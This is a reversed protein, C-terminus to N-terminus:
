EDEGLHAELFATALETRRDRSLPLVDGNYMIVTTAAVTEIYGLNVVYSKHIQVFGKDAYKHVIDSLRGNFEETGSGRVMRIKRGYSEFYHINSLPVRHSKGNFTYSFVEGRKTKLSIAKDMCAAVREYKLPKLLFNLPHTDFLEMVYEQKASIYVIQTLLDSQHERIAQAVDLGSLHYMEIDLFILDFSAGKDLALYIDEGSYFTMVDPKVDSEEAYRHLFELMQDCITKENDCVAVTLM